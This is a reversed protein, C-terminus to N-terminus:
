FLFVTIVNNLMLYDIRNLANQLIATEKMNNGKSYKKKRPAFKDLTKRCVDIFNQLGNSLNINEMVLTSLHDQRFSYNCYKQYDRYHIIKPDLKQFTTKVVTVTIKHFDSIETEIVDSSQFSM